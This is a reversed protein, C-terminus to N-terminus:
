SCVFIFHMHCFCVIDVEDEDIEEEADFDDGDGDGDFDDEYDDFDDAYVEDDSAAGWRPSTRETPYRTLPDRTADNSPILTARFM